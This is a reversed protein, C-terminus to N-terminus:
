PMRVEAAGLPGMSLVQRREGDLLTLSFADQEGTPFLYVQGTASVPHGNIVFENIEIGPMLRTESFLPNNVPTFEAGIRQLFRFSKTERDIELRWPRSSLMVEQRAHNIVLCLRQASDALSRGRIGDLGPLVMGILIGILMIVVLLELVTFGSACFGNHAAAANGTDRRRCVGYIM